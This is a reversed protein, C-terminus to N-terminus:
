LAGHNSEQSGELLTKGFNWNKSELPAELESMTLRTVLAGM